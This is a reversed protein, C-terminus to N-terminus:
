GDGVPTATALYEGRRELITAITDQSIGTVAEIAAESQGADHLAIVQLAVATDENYAPTPVSDTDPTVLWREIVDLGTIFVWRAITPAAVMLGIGVTLILVVGLPGPPLVAASATVVGLAALLLSVGALVFYAAVLVAHKFQSAQRDGGTPLMRSTTYESKDDTQGADEPGTKPEM